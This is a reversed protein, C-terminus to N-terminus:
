RRSSMTLNRASRPPGSSQPMDELVFPRVDALTGQKGPREVDLVAAPPGPIVDLEIRRAVLYQNAVRVVDRATVAFVRELVGGYSLPDGSASTRHCLVDAKSAVPELTTILSMERQNQARLVENDLPGDVKLRDIEADVLLVVDTLDKASRTTVHVEFEGSILSTPHAANVQLARQQDYM